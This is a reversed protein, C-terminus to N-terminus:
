SNKLSQKGLKNLIKKLNWGTAAFFAKIQASSTGQLYNQGM